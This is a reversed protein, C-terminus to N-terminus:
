VSSQHLPYPCPSTSIGGSDPVPLFFSRFFPLLCCTDCALYLLCRGEKGAPRNKGRRCFLNSGTYSFSHQAQEVQKSQNLWNLTGLLLEPKGAIFAEFNSYTTSDSFGVVRGKGAKIGVMQLFAGFPMYSHDKVPPYFNGSPYFIDLAKAGQSVIISECKSSLPQISCSVKFCFYPMNQVVPHPLLRPPYYLQEFKHEIDFLVDYRFSFGFEEAVPNLYTSNGFVNTHESM